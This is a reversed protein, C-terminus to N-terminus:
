LSSVEFFQETDVFTEGSDKSISEKKKQQTTNNQDASFLQHQQLKM